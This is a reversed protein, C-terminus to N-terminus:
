GKIPHLRIASGRSPPTAPPPLVSKTRLFHWGEPLFKKVILLHKRFIVVITKSTQQFLHSRRFTKKKDSGIHKDWIWM